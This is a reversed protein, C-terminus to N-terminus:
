FGFDAVLQSLCTDQYKQGPYIELITILIGRPRIEEGLLVEQPGTEDRLTRVWTRGSDTKIEIKKVRSNNLYTKTSKDYGNAILLRDYAPPGTDGEFPEYSLEIAEGIGNGKVGECWAGEQFLNQPGYLNAEQSPLASSVCWSISKAIQTEQALKHCISYTTKSAGVVNQPTALVIFFGLLALTYNKLQTM